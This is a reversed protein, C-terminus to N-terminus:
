SSRQLAPCLGVAPLLVHDLLAVTFEPDLAVREVSVRFMCMSPIVRALLDVDLSTAIEGRDVARQLVARSLAVWPAVAAAFATEGLGSREAGVMSTLGAIVALRKEGFADPRTLALVDGRLSGTDPLARLDVDRQGMRVVADRVLQAKSAWRRYVTAKSAKARAAVAEMTMGDFGQEALVDLAADLIAPDRSADRKRGPRAPHGTEM